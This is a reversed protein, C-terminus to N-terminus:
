TLSSPPYRQLDMYAAQAVGRGGRLITKCSKERTEEAEIVADLRKLTAEIAAKEGELKALADTIRETPWASRVSLAECRETLTSEAQRRQSRQTGEPADQTGVRLSKVMDAVEMNERTPPMYPFADGFRPNSSSKAFGAVSSGDTFVYRGTQRSLKERIMSRREGEIARRTAIANSNKENWLAGSM